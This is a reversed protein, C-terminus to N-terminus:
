ANLVAFRNSVRTMSQLKSPGASRRKFVVHESDLEFWLKVVCDHGVIIV